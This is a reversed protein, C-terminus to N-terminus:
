RLKDLLKSLTTAEKETLNNLFELYSNVDITDLLNLGEKNITIFVVRRDDNCRIREILKKECLKDMLRTANPARDIMREKIVQVKIPKEAGRLIRLINYQQPSIGYPRFFENEHSNIWNATYKINILAKIKNNKFKSSIDKSVDGM